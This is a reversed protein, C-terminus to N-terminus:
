DCKVIEAYRRVKRTTWYLRHNHGHVEKPDMELTEHEKARYRGVGRCTVSNRLVTTRM